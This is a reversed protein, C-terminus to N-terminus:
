CPQPTDNGKNLCFFLTENLVDLAEFIFCSQLAEGDMSFFLLFTNELDGLLM